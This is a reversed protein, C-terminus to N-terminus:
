LNLKKKVAAFIESAEKFRESGQESLGLFEYSSKPYTAGNRDTGTNSLLGEVKKRQDEPVTLEFKMTVKSGSTSYGTYNCGLSRKLDGTLVLWDSKGRGYKLKKKEYGKAKYRRWQRGKIDIGRGTREWILKLILPRIERGLANFDSKFFQDLLSQKFIISINSANM